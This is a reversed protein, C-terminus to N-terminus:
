QLLLLRGYYISDIILLGIGQIFIALGSGYYFGTNTEKRKNMWIFFAAILLYFLDLGLNIEMVLFLHLKLWDVSIINIKDIHYSLWIGIISNVLNWALTMLLFWKGYKMLFALYLALLTTAVIFAFYIYIHQQSIDYYSQILNLHM